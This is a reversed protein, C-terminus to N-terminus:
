LPQQQADETQLSPEEQEESTASLALGTERRTMVMMRESGRAQDAYSLAPDWAWVVRRRGRQRTLLILVRDRQLSEIWVIWLRLPM